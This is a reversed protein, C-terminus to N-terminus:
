QTPECRSQGLLTKHLSLLNLSVHQEIETGLGQGIYEARRPCNQNTTPIKTPEWYTITSTQIETPPSYSGAYAQQHKSVDYIILRRPPPATGEDIILFRDTFGLISDPGDFTIVSDGPNMAYTCSFQEDPNTKQKVLVKLGFDEVPTQEVLFYQSSSECTLAETSSPTTSSSSTNTGTTSSSQTSPAAPSSPPAGHYYFFFAALLLVAVVVFGIVFPKRM